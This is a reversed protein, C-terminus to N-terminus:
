SLAIAACAFAARQKRTVPRWLPTSIPNKGEFRLIANIICPDPCDIIWNFLVPHSIKYAYLDQALHITEDLRVAGILGGRFTCAHKSDLGYLGYQKPTSKHCNAHILVWGRYPTDSKRYDVEVLGLAIALADHSDSSLAQLSTVGPISDIDIDPSIKDRGILLDNIERPELSRTIAIQQCRTLLDKKIVMRSLRGQGAGVILKSIDEWELEGYRYEPLFLHRNSFRINIGLRKVCQAYVEIYDEQRKETNKM